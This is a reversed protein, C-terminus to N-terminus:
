KTLEIVREIEEVPQAGHLAVGNVLVVPTGTFGFRQFEEMDAAVVSQIAASKMDKEIKRQDLGLSQVVKRLYAETRLEQQNEYVIEYFKKAKEKSHAAIAEFYLAAPYAMKHFDLPMHKYYFQVDNKYKEKITQLNTFAMRCAPCQFDAYEVIVIKGNKSGALLRSEKIEPKLPNKLQEEQQEKLENMRQAYKGQQAKQAARNVVDLFKEPNEEIVSFVIDPNKKITEAVQSENTACSALVLLAVLWVCKM